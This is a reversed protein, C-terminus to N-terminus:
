PVTLEEVVGELGDVVRALSDYDVKDPTDTRQHYHPYRFPATDTVMIAPYGVAWFSSHDSWGVGPLGGPFAGGESPFQARVRFARVARQVVSRSDVNGVFSVFDGISPYQYGLV